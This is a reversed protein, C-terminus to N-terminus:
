VFGVVATDGTLTIRVTKGEPCEVEAINGGLFTIRAVAPGPSEMVVSDGVQTATWTGSTPTVGTVHRITVM